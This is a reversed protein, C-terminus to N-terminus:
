GGAGVEVTDPEAEPETEAEAIPAVAVEETDLELTDLPLALPLAVEDPEAAGEAVM